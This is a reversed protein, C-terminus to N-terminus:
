FKLSVGVNLSDIRQNRDSFRGNYAAYGTLNDGIDASVGLDATWWSDDPQFGPMSFSGNLNILGAQVMNPSTDSEHQYAIRGFPHLATEGMKMDGMLQWGLTAIGSKREQRGFFMSSSDSDNEFYSNVKIKQWAYSGYPGTKFNGWDFFYGGGVQLGLHSGGADGRETRTAAGLRFSRTVDNFNLQGAAGLVSVYAGGSHWVGYASFLPEINRYGGGGAFEAKQFGISTAIGVSFSPNFRYDAGTTLTSNHSSTEPSTVAADYRQNSYDFSVFTRLNDDGRDRSMDGLFQNSLSRAHTDFLALPAEALMSAYQPAQIEAIVYQALLRNSAGTLHVGDAFVFTENANPSVLSAPSCFLSPTAGCARDTTNTFGYLTPNAYVENFLGYTDVSIIGTKGSLGENLTGNYTLILGSISASFPSTRFDPTKGIDPLNYVIINQAGATQLTNILGLEQQASAVTTARATAPNALANFINNAGVWMSYLANPDAHGGSTAFYDGLQQAVNRCPLTTPVCVFPAATPAGGWAFDTGG